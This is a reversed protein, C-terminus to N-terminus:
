DPIQQWSGPPVGWLEFCMAKAANVDQGWYDWEPYPSDVREFAFCEVGDDGVKLVTKAFGKTNIAAVFKIM